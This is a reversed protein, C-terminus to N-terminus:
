DVPCAVLFDGHFINQSIYELLSHIYPVKLQYPLMYIFPMLIMSSNVDKVFSSLVIYEASQFPTYFGLLNAYGRHLNEFPTNKLMMNSMTIGPTVFRVNKPILKSIENIARRKSRGYSDSLSYQMVSSTVIVQINNKIIMDKLGTVIQINAQANIIDNLQNDHVGANLYIYQLNCSSDNLIRDIFQTIQNKDALDLVDRNPAIVSVGWCPLLNSIQDGIGSSAGTVIACSQTPITLTLTYVQKIECKRM